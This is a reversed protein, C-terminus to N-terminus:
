SGEIDLQSLQQRVEAARPDDPARSLFANFHLRAEDPRDLDDQLLEGLQLHVEINGPVLKLVQQFSELAEQPRGSKRLLRAQNFEATWYAPNISLSSKFSELSEGMQQKAELALGLNNWAEFSQDNLELTRRAESEALEWQETEVAMASLNNHADAFGPHDNVLEKLLELAGRTDGSLYMAIGQNNRAGPHNPDSELVMAYQKLADQVHGHSALWGGLSVRLESPPADSLRIAERLHVEVDQSDIGSQALLVGIRGHLDADDPSRQLGSTYFELAQELRGTTRYVDGLTVWTSAQFPDRDISAQLREIAAEVQGAPLEVRAAYAANLRPNDPLLALGEELLTNVEERQRSRGLTTALLLRAEVDLPDDTLVGTLLEGAQATNNERLEIGALMLHLRHNKSDLKLAQEVTGRAEALENLAILSQTLDVMGALNNPDEALVDYLVERAQQYLRDNQFQRARELGVHVHLIDKPDMRDEDAIRTVSGMAVYGLGQLRRLAESDLKVQNGAKDDPHAEIWAELASTLDFGVGPDNDLLNTLEHPDRRLDFLEPNPSDIYKWYQQRMVRLKSWGYTYYPLYAEAYISRDAPFHSNFISTGAMEDNPALGLADLLTPALDVQSVTQSVRVGAPGGPIRLIFPIHLTSEYALIAHTNEGHEGLSEGHDGIVVVIPPESGNVRPHSLLRGIQSDMFAIEGDYPDDRYTTRYPPPPNYAAHPDYFHVWAFYRDEEALTDLWESVSDVTLNGPRDPVVRPFRAVSGSLDDDYVEFGQNLNYRKELVSASVFAGTRYGELQLREALTEVEDPVYHTGNNRVQHQPPYLGTLISTHAPLTIPAVASAHEFVIGENALRQLAPTAIDQYGYPSLRDARTTDVTILLVSRKSRDIATQAQQGEVGWQRDAQASNNFRILEVTVFGVGALLLLVGVVKRFGSM